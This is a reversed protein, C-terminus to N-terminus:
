WSEVQRWLTGKLIDLLQEVKPHQGFFTSKLWAKGRGMKTKELTELSCFTKLSNVTQALHSTSYLLGFNIIQMVFLAQAFTATTFTEWRTGEAQRLPYKHWHNCLRSSLRPMDSPSFACKLSGGTLFLWQSKNKKTQCAISHPMEVFIMPFDM